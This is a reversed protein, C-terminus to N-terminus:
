RRKFGYIQGYLNAANGIITSAAGYNAATKAYQGGMRVSLAESRGVKRRSDAELAGLKRIARAQMRENEAEVRFGWAERAANVRLTLADLEAQYATDMQVELASGGSIDVNQGAYGARQAGILGRIDVRFRQETERGRYIADKAQAEAIRSNYEAIEANTRAGEEILQANIEAIEEISRANVEAIRRQEAGARVQGVGGLITGFSQVAAPIIINWPIPM